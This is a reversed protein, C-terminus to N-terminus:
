RCSDVLRRGLSVEVKYGRPFGAARCGARGRRSPQARAQRAAGRGGPAPSQFQIETITQPKRCSSRSGCRRGTAARRREVDDADARRDRRRSHHSATAKWGDTFVAAPLSAILEPVTWMTKRGATAARVRAVDAPTVFGGTNGFSRRVFSAVAAVWEDNNVGMPMMVDTYTKGDVPGTLGHLVAKIVYDRHGNVRPSGALAPAMTTALEPKPTGFGDAGHCAFCLENYITAGREILAQQEATLPDGGRGGGRGAPPNLVTSAVVQVGRAQNSEMTAKITAAADPVKWRNLTLMAQIVVDVSPDKTLAKYDNAFSEDGAKYLTESARIAQIRMRPEPDEMLQRVLARQARRARRADVARPLARAPEALDQRDDAAGPVVSKNQKLVLLQQATDRWWGNPHSLHRVLQAATENHM